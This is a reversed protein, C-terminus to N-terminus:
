RYHFPVQNSHFGATSLAHLFTSSKQDNLSPHSIQNGARQLLLLMNIGKGKVSYLADRAATGLGVEYLHCTKCANHAHQLLFLLQNKLTRHATICLREAAEGLIVKPEEKGSRPITSKNVNVEVRVRFKPRFGEFARAKLAPIREQSHGGHM